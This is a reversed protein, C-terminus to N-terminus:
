GLLTNMFATDCVQPYTEYDNLTVTLLDPLGRVYYQGDIEEVDFNGNPGPFGGNDWVQARYLVPTGSYTGAFVVWSGKPAITGDALYATGSVYSYPIVVPGGGTSQKILTIDFTYVEGALGTTWEKINAQEVGDIVAVPPVITDGGGAPTIFWSKVPIAGTKGGWANSVHMYLETQKPLPFNPDTGAVFGNLITLQGQSTTIGWTKPGGSAHWTADDWFYFWVGAAATGDDYKVTANIIVDSAIQFVVPEGTYVTSAGAPGSIFPMECLKRTDEVGEAPAPKGSRCEFLKDDDKKNIYKIYVNLELGAPIPIYGHMNEPVVGSLDTNLVSPWEGIDPGTTYKTQWVGENSFLSTFISVEANYIGKGAQDLVNGKIYTADYKNGANFISFHSITGEYATGASNLNLQGPAAM